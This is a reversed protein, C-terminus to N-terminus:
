PKHKMLYQNLDNYNKYSNSMDIFEKKTNKKVIQAAFKGSHDNDFFVIVKKHDNLYKLSKHLNNTSNLIIYNYTNKNPYMVLFSFFDFMGEFLILTSSNYYFSTISKKGISGKFNKNRLEWGGDQNMFGLSYYLKSETEGYYVENFVNKISNLDIKRSKLYDILRSNKLDRVDFKIPVELLSDGVNFTDKVLRNYLKAGTISSPITKKEGYSWKKPISFYQFNLEKIAARLKFVYKNKIEIFIKRCLVVEDTITTDRTLLHYIDQLMEKTVGTVDAKKLQGGTIKTKLDDFYEGEDWIKGLAYFKKAAFFGRFAVVESKFDMTNFDKHWNGIKGLYFDLAKLYCENLRTALDQIYNVTTRTDDYKNFPVNFLIYASDTDAYILRPDKDTLEIFGPLLTLDHVTGPKVNNIVEFISETSKELDINEGMYEPEYQGVKDAGSPAGMISM